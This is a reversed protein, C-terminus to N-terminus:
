AKESARRKAALWDRYLRRLLNLDRMRHRQVYRLLCDRLEREGVNEPEVQEYFDVFEALTLMDVLNYLGHFGFTPARPVTREFAFGNALQVSAFRIGYKRELLPRYTRCITVDEAEGIVIEPDTCAELLARSRLSFGGNGVIHGDGFQPWCAGIYDQDLFSRHWAASDLIYGDWQVILAFDAEVHQVLRKLMFDSYRASSDIREIPVRRIGAPLEIDLDHTILKVAAFDAHSMSQTLARVTLPLQASSVAVLEVRDLSLISARSTM